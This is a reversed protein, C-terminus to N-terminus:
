RALHWALATRVREASGPSAALFRALLRDASVTRGDREAIRVLARTRVEGDDDTDAMRGLLVGDTIAEVVARRVQPASDRSATAVLKDFDAPPAEASVRDIPKQLLVVFTDWAVARVDADRDDLLVRVRERAGDLPRLESLHGLARLYAVRVEASADDALDPFAFPLPRPEADFSAEAYLAALARIAVARVSDDRDRVLSAVRKVNASGVREAAATPGMIAMRAIVTDLCAARVKADRDGFGVALVASAVKTPAHGVAGCTGARVRADSSRQWRVFGAPLASVELLGLAHLGIPSPGAALDADVVQRVDAKADLRILAAAEALARKRDVKIDARLLDLLPQVASHAGIESEALLAAFRLDSDSTAHTLQYLAEALQGTSARGIADVAMRRAVPDSSALGERLAGLMLETIADTRKQSAPERQIRKTARTLDGAKILRATTERIPLLMEVVRATAPGAQRRDRAFLWRLHVHDDDSWLAPPPKPLPAADRVVQLIARDFDVNGSGTLRVDTVRGTADVVIDATAELTMVNLPHTAPLRLRCDELFQFWGTQLALGVAARYPADPAELDLVPPASLRPM